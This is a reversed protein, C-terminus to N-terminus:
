RKEPRIAAALDATSVFKWTRGGDESFMSVRRRGFHDVRYFWHTSWYDYSLFLRGSRDVTLRHYFVSYESFPPVILIKPEEWAANAQKSQFALTAFYSKPFPETARQWLRFATYLTDDKGCVLGIYTQQGQSIYQPETFGPQSDNPQLSRAYPFPAGHTGGLAHLYGASDMTIAPTNHIDNPPAGYGVFVPKGLTRATRDFTNVYAPTGPIKEQPDTAEGWIAHVKDGCSVLCCPSGSHSAIGLCQESLVFPDGLVLEDARKQPVFLELRHLYRWFLKPDRGTQLFRLVPPPGDPVNHGTFVELDFSEPLQSPPFPYARFTSGGDPSYVLASKGEVRALFYIGGRRDFAVKPTLPSVGRAPRDSGALYTRERIGLAQWRGERLTQLEGGAFVFPCNDLDFYLENETPYDPLLGLLENEHVYPKLVLPPVFPRSAPPEGKYLEITSYTTIGSDTQPTARLYFIAEDRDTPLSVELQVPESRGPPVPIESRSLRAPLSKDPPELELQITLARGSNNHVQFTLEQSDGPELFVVRRYPFLLWRFDVFPFYAAAEPTWYCLDRYPDGPRWRTLGDVQITGGPPPVVLQCLELPALGSPVEARWLGSDERVFSTLEDGDAALLQPPNAWPKAPKLEVQFRLPTPRFFVRAAREPNYLVIPEEHPADRHGRSTEIVYRGCNTRFSWFMAEGYRDQTVTINLAYIGKRPVSVELRVWQQAGLRGRPLGDDPIWKEAVVKRDPGALIARLETPRDVQNLDRKSVEVVLPGPEALFYIGGIGGM